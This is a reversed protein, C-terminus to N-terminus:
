VAMPCDDDGCGCQPPCVGSAFAEALEVLSVGSDNAGAFDREDDRSMGYFRLIQSNANLGMRSIRGDEIFWCVGNEDPESWRGLGSMDCLVGLFCFADGRHFYGDGQKYEGNEVAELVADRNRQQLMRVQKRYDEDTMQRQIYGPEFLLKHEDKTMMITM